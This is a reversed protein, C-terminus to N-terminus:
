SNVQRLRAEREVDRRLLQDGYREVWAKIAPIRWGVADLGLSLKVNTLTRSASELQEFTEPWNVCWSCVYCGGCGSQDEYLEKVRCDYAEQAEKLKLTQQEITVGVPTLCNDVDVFLDLGIRKRAAEEITIM